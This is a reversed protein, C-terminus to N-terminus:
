KSAPQGDIKALRGNEFSLTLLTQKVLKGDRRLSYYYDWRDNRFADEVLPTGLLGQVTRKDMGISVKALQEASVMNGQEVDPRYISCASLLGILVIHILIKQM